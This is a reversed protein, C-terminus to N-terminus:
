SAYPISLGLALACVFSSLQTFLLLAVPEHRSICVVLQLAAGCILLLSAFFVKKDSSLTTSIFLVAGTIALAVLSFVFGIWAGISIAISVSRSKRELDGAGSSNGTLLTAQLPSSSM